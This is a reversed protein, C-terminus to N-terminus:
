SFFIEATREPTLHYRDIVTAIESGKWDTKGNIRANVGSVSIDLAEGLKKQTDNNRKMEVEMECKNM